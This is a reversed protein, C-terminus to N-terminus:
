WVLLVAHLGCWWIQVLSANSGLAWVVWYVGSFCWQLGAAAQRWSPEQGSVGSNGQPSDDGGSSNTDSFLAGGCVTLLMDVVAATQIQFCRVVVCLWCCTLWQQQKYRFVACWCMCDTIHWGSSNNTNSFLAGGCATLLMDVVAATQIQFCHVLVHLWCCTLWQQQKYKFVTCWCMSDAVHWGSSSNADSFLAGSSSNADSFLAGGCATLLM